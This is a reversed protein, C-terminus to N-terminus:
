RVLEADATSRRGADVDGRRIHSFGFHQALHLGDSDLVGQYLAGLHWLYLNLIWLPLAVAPHGLHRLWRLGPTRLLPQVLPGTLGLAIGLAALDGIMLHQAMHAVVLEEALGALPPAETLLLILLGLGFCGQRWWPVAQGRAALTASRRLYAAGVGVLVLPALLEILPPAM